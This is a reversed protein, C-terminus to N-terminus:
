LMRGAAAATVPAGAAAPFDVGAHFRDGRPGFRDGLPADVPRRLRVPPVATPERLAALTRPGVAGDVRLGRARQFRRVAGALHLGFSGDFSGSPFGDWALEFQAAAVDWGRDGLRLVRSGPAHLAFPGLVRRTQPGVIGDVVLGHRGQLRRVAARTLPGAVGDVAGDYAGKRLLAVQLAAVAPTGAADAGVVPWVLLLLASLVAVQRYVM